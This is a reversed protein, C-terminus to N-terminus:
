IVRMVFAQFRNRKNIRINMLDIIWKNWNYETQTPMRKTGYRTWNGNNHWFRLEHLSFEISDLYCYKERNLISILFIWISLIVNWLEDDGDCRGFVSISNSKALFISAADASPLEVARRNNLVSENSETELIPEHLENSSPSSTQRQSSQMRPM